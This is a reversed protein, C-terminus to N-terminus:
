LIQRDQRFPTATRGDLISRRLGCLCWALLCSHRCLAFLGHRVERRM